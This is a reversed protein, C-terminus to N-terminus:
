GGDKEGGDGSAAEPADGRTQGALRALSKAIAPPLTSFDREAAPAPPLSRGSLGNAPGGNQAGNGGNSAPGSAHDAPPASSAARGLNLPGPPRARHATEEPGPTARAAPPVPPGPPVAPSSVSAPSPPSPPIGGDSASSPPQTAPVQGAASATFPASPQPNTGGNAASAPPLAPADTAVAAGRPGASALRQQRDQEAILRLQDAFPSDAQPPATVPASPAPAAVPASPASTSLSSPQFTPEPPHAVRPQETQRHPQPQPPEGTAATVSAADPSRSPSAGVPQAPPSTRPTSSPSSSPSSTASADPVGRGQSTPQDGGSANAQPAIPPPAAVPHPPASVTRPSGNAGADPKMSAHAAAKASVDRPDAPTARGGQERASVGAQTALPPHPMAMPASTPPPPATQEGPRADASVTPPAPATPGPSPRHPEPQPQPSSPATLPTTPGTVLSTSAGVASRAGANTASARALAPAALPAGTHMAEAGPGRADDPAMAQSGAPPAATVVPPPASGNPREAGAGTGVGTGTGNARLASGNSASANGKDKAPSLRGTIGSVASGAAAALNRMANGSTGTTESEREGSPPRPAGSGDAVPAQSPLSAQSPAGVQPGGNAARLASGAEAGASLTAVSAATAGGGPPPASAPAPPPGPIAAPTAAQEKAKAKQKDKDRTWFLGSGLLKRESKAIMRLLNQAEKAPMPEGYYYGQAYGCGISRLFAADESTEVGEAVVDMDLEQAMAVISRVIVPEPGEEGSGQVLARDIKITDFPFRQLYSLSSYGTGFDDLSLGAGADRLLDLMQTAQEPNDMVLSETIELRLAEAPIIAKGLIHKVEQILDQRFLQRSSVNVSVFIQADERPLTKHWQAAEAVARSLVFSGLKVILDTEEAVPIFDIPNLPGLRPHQWRVLAEFGVLEETPYSIIPQFLLKLQGREIARRLDSEIAVRDDKQSRMTPQFVEIRDSGESKARYMATEADRLLDQETGLAPDYKAIGISVTLVIEQGAIRIPARLAGRMRDAIANLTHLPQDAPILVAFQDGGVRALTDQAGIHHALRRAITLLISDGVILGFSSNVSKFKDIDIFLLAPRVLTESGARTVAVKLRDIFLERNPCGTLADHVADHMLREQARKTDTTERLLGVCRQSRHDPTPLGAAELEFWRYSNDAHRLRFNIRMHENPRERATMLNLRFRDRDAAHMHRLFDDTKASLDGSTLGLAAEIVPSVKVEDRRASWEWVAAGAGDIALSRVQLQSPAAGHVPELARFAFQTVIFGLLLLFLVLGGVMAQEVVPGHLRGQVVMAAGFIWATFPLWAPLLALGRDQNRLALYGALLLGVGGILPYSLRAFTAALRPDIIAAFVLGLQAAIWVAFLMRVFGNWLQLRLFAYLFIVLSAAVAAETAARYMANDDVSLQLLKHWFGFDVCLYALVCWSVLAAVPFIVKHNAVFIATLFIGLVCAIGLLIGKMLQSDRSQQEFTLADWLYIQPVTANRKADALRDRALEVVFTVTERPALTIRFIDATDSKVREPVFGVSPTVAEIRRTDLNPWIAGSGVISYRSATLWRHVTADSPNRLAFVLWRPNSGLRKAKVVMRASIVNPGAATRVQLRDGRNEYIVGKATLAIRADTAQVQVPELAQASPAVCVLMALVCLALAALRVGAGTLGTAREALTRDIPALWHRM